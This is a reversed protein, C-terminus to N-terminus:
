KSTFENLINGNLYITKLTNAVYPIATSCIMIDDSDFMNVSHILQKVVLPMNKLFQYDQYLM